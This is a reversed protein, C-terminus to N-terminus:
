TVFKSFQPAIQKKCDPAGELLAPHLSNVNNNSKLMKINNSGKRSKILFLYDHLNAWAFALKLFITALGKPPSGVSMFAEFTKEGSALSLGVICPCISVLAIVRYNFSMKTLHSTKQMTYLFDTAKLNLDVKALPSPM